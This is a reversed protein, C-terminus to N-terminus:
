SLVEQYSRVGHFMEDQPSVKHVYKNINYLDLHNEMINQPDHRKFEINVLKVDELTAAELKLHGFDLLSFMGVQLPFTPWAKKQAAKLEKSIGRTVTQYAVERCVLQYQLFNPLAHPSVSCGFVGIYSFHEEIYWDVIKGLNAMIKDSIRPPPFSYLAIHM